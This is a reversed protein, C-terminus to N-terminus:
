VSNMPIVLGSNNFDGYFTLAFSYTKLTAGSNITLPVKTTGNGFVKAADM